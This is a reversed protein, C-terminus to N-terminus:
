VFKRGHNCAHLCGNYSTGTYSYVHLVHLYVYLKMCFMSEHEKYWLFFILYIYINSYLVNIM